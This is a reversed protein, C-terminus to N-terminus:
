YEERAELEYLEELEIYIDRANGELEHSLIGPRYGMRYLQVSTSMRRRRNSPREWLVGNRNYDAELAAHAACIDFRDFYPM